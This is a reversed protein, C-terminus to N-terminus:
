ACWNFTHVTDTASGISSVFTASITHNDGIGGNFSVSDTTAGVLGYNRATGGVGNLPVGGNINFNITNKTGANNVSYKSILDYDVDHDTDLGEITLSATSPFQVVRTNSYRQGFKEIVERSINTNMNASQATGGLNHAGPFSITVHEQTVAASTTNSVTPTTGVTSAAVSMGSGEFSLNILAFAGVSAEASASGVFNGQTTITNGGGVYDSNDDDNNALGIAVDFAASTTAQMIQAKTIIGGNNPNGTDGALLQLETNITPTQTLLRDYASLKGFANVDTRNLEFGYTASQVGRLVNASGLKVLKSSYLIRQRSM